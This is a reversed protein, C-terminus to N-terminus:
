FRTSVSFTITRPNGLASYSGLQQWYRRDSLNEVNLRFITERNLIKSEYRAGLDFVTGGSDSVSDDTFYHRKGIYYAGGTLYLDGPLGGVSPFKYESYMKAMTRPVGGPTRGRETDNRTKTIEADLWTFGGFLTLRETAKGSVTFEVGKHAQRGDQTRTLTGNGNDVDYINAKDIYFLSATLFAGGLTAKAGLEYQESITPELVQLANTYPIGGNHESVSGANELAEIYTGYLSLAPIPKYILSVNPTLKSKDYEGTKAGALNFNRTHSRTYNAGLMLIFKDISIQDGIVWNSYEEKGTKYWKGSPKAPLTTPKPIYPNAVTTTQLGYIGVYNREPVYTDNISTSYGVTLKHDLAATKFTYDLYGYGGYNKQERASRQVFQEMIWKDYDHAGISTYDFGGPFGWNGNGGTMRISKDHQWRIASRFSLNETAEVSLGAGWRTTERDDYPWKQGYIKHADPPAIMNGVRAGGAYFSGVMGDQNRQRQAADLQLLVRESIHWDIAGSFLTERLSLGEQETEGEAHSVNLRYGLRGELLPGGADVHTNFRSGGLYGMTVDAFRYATPRKLVYNIAGSANGGGTLFGSFGPIVEVREMDDLTLGSGNIGGQHRIGDVLIVAGFGRASISPLDNNNQSFGQYANPLMKFLQDSTAVNANRILAGPIVNITYPADQISLDGWPGIKRATEVRYGTEASGEEPQATVTIEGLVPTNDTNTEQQKEQKEQAQAEPADGPAASAALSFSLGLL